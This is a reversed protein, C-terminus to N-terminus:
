MISLNAFLGHYKWSWNCSCLILIGPWRNGIPLITKKWFKTNNSGRKYVM